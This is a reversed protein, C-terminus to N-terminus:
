RSATPSGVPAPRAVPRAALLAEGRRENSSWTPDLGPARVRVRGVGDHPTLEWLLAPRDGHWRLVFSMRGVSTPAEHVEVAQGHWDDPLMTCLELATSHEAETNSSGLRRERVLMNRVLSLFQASVRGHHGDGSCGGSTNPHIAGPWTFTDTASDVVWQLRQLAIRDRQCLEVSALQLTLPASLGSQCTDYVAAGRCFRARAVDVTAVIAEDDSALLHLPECAVLSAVAGADVARLPGLPIVRTGQRSATTALSRRVDAMLSAAWRDCLASRRPDGSAALMEAADQLGAMSWFADWYSVDRRGFGAPSSSAPMLGKLEPRRRGARRRRRQISRAGLAISPVLDTLLADDRTLRWHQAMASIACGNADVDVGDAPSSFLGDRKQRSPYTRLVEAVEDHFGFLDLAGLLSHADRFTFPRDSFPGPVVDPGTHFLLLFKRNAELADALRGAPLELRMGRRAVAEWGRAVTEAPPLGGPFEELPSVRPRRRRGDRNSRALPVAARLLSRHPLPYVFVAQAMGDQCVVPSLSGGPVTALRTMMGAVDGDALTGGVATSPPRPLVLATRGDVAVTHGDTMAIQRVVAFGEPNYPRLAIALALPVPSRNEFEVVLVEGTSEDGRRPRSVTYARQVADGSPVRLLTEVVPANDVLRQRVAVERSPFHWRDEAGIWWDLSWGDLWPTVLGCADVIPRAPSAVNGLMTWNRHTVNSLLPLPGTPVFSVSAPDTQRELWQPWVWGADEQAVLRSRVARAPLRVDVDQGRQQVVSLQRALDESMGPRGLARRVM